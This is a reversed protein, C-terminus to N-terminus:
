NRAFSTVVFIFFSHLLSIRLLLDLTSATGQFGLISIMSYFCFIFYVRAATHVNFTGFLLSVELQCACMSVKEAHSSLVFSNNNPQLQHRKQGKSKKPPVYTKVAEVAMVFDLFMRYDM